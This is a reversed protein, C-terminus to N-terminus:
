ETLLFEEDTLDPYLEQLYRTLEGVLDEETPDRGVVSKDIAISQAIPLMDGDDNTFMVTGIVVTDADAVITCYASFNEGDETATAFYVVKGEGRAIESINTFTTVDDRETVEGGGLYEDMAGLCQAVGYALIDAAEEPTLTDIDIGTTNDEAYVSIVHADALDEESLGMGVDMLLYSNASWIVVPYSLMEALEEDVEEGSFMLMMSGILLDAITNTRTTLGYPMSFTAHTVQRIERFGAPTGEIYPRTINTRETEQPTPPEQVGPTDQIGPLFVDPKKKNEASGSCAAMLTFLMVCALLLSLMRKM